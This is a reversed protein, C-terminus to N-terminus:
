SEDLELFACDESQAKQQNDLCSFYWDVKRVATKQNNDPEKKLLVKLRLKAIKHVWNKVLSSFILWLLINWTDTTKTM